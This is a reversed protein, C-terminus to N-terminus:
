FHTLLILACRLKITKNHFGFGFSPNGGIQEVCLRVCVTVLNPLACFWDFGVKLNYMMHDFNIM